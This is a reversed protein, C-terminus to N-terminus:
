KSLEILEVSIVVSSIPIVMLIYDKQYMTIVRNELYQILRRSEKENTITLNFTVSKENIGTVKINEISYECTIDYLAMVQGFGDRVLDELV